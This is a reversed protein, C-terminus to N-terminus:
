GSAKVEAATVGATLQALITVIATDPKIDMQANPKRGALPSGHVGDAM